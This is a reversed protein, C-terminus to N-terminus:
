LAKRAKLVERSERRLLELLDDIHRRETLFSNVNVRLARRGDLVTTSFWAEGSREIRGQLERQLADLEAGGAGRMAAPAFRLCCVATEVEGVREFGELAGVRAA